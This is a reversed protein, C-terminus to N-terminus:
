PPREIGAAIADEGRRRIGTPQAWGDMLMGFCHMNVDDWEDARMETGAANIWTVDKVALEEDYEGTLFRSRRLIPYRERLETLQQVFRTLARSKEEIGWDSADVLKAAGLAAIVLATELQTSECNENTPIGLDPPKPSFTTM